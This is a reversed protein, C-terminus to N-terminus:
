SEDDRCIRLPLAGPSAEGRVLLYEIFRSLGQQKAQDLDYEMGSLYRCCEEESIPIRPAVRGCIEALREKGEALCRRLEQHITAVVEPERRCFEERVAWVAFVFPLGSQRHWVQGLDLRHPWQHDAALRLAEDGIVLVGDLTELDPQELLRGVRYVPRVRYFDELVIRVLAVSTQSQSSLLIQGNDLAKPPRRSFLFVSGVPGTASLSLDGLLRYSEPHAAYEHSSIFGMDLQGAYLMRNLVAPPAESVQWDPRSVSEKWIEYLPATNIFNVMGIRVPRSAAKQTMGSM